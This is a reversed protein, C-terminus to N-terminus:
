IRAPTAGTQGQYHSGLGNTGYPRLAPAALDAFTIQAITMGPTLPLNVPSDNKLELVVDGCFGPDLFGASHITLFKRAWTSKGEIRALADAPIRVQEVLHGLVCEGPELVYSFEPSLRIEEQEGLRAFPNRFGDGLRVDLSAPQVQSDQIPGYQDLRDAPVFVVAQAQHPAHITYEQIIEDNWYGVRNM